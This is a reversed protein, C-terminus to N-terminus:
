DKINKSNHMEDIMQREISNSLADSAEDMLRPNMNRFHKLGDIANRDHIVVKVDQDNKIMLINNFSIIREKIFQNNVEEADIEDVGNVYHGGKAAPLDNWRQLKARLIRRINLKEPKKLKDQLDLIALMQDLSYFESRNSIHFYKGYGEHLRFGMKILEREM